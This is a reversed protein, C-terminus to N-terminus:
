YWEHYCYCQENNNKGFGEPLTRGNALEYKQIIKVMDENLKHYGCNYIINPYADYLMEELDYEKRWYLVEETDCVFYADYTTITYKEQETNNLM